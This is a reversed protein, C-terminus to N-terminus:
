WRFRDGTTALRTRVSVLKGDVDDYPIRVGSGRANALGLGKLFDIPLHKSAALDGVTFRDPRADDGPHVRGALSGTSRGGGSGPALRQPQLDREHLGLAAVIRERPCGAFCHILVGRGEGIGVSLSPNHDEHAPCRASWGKHGKTVRDLRDLVRTIASAAEDSPEGLM